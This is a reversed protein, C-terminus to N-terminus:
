VKFFDSALKARIFADQAQPNGLNRDPHIELSLARWRSHIEAFLNLDIIALNHLACNPDLEPDLVRNQPTMERLQEIKEPSLKKCLPETPQPSGFPPVFAQYCKRLLNQCSHAAIATHVVMNRLATKKRHLNKMCLKIGNLASLGIYYTTAIRVPIDVWTFLNRFIHLPLHLSPDSLPILSSEITTALIEATFSLRALALAAGNSAWGSSLALQNLWFLSAGAFLLLQQLSLKMPDKESSSAGILALPSLKLENCLDIRGGKQVFTELHSLRGEVAAYHLPTDGEEDPHNPDAGLEILREIIKKSGAIAAIHLLSRGEETLIKPDAGAAILKEFSAQQNGLVAYYLSTYGNPDKWNLLLSPGLNERKELDGRYAEQSLSTLKKANIGAGLALQHVKKKKEAIPDFGERDTRTFFNKVNIGFEILQNKRQLQKEIEKLDKKLKIRLIQSLLTQNESLVAHDIANLKEADPIEPDAGSELLFVAIEMQNERIALHLPFLNQLLPWNLIFGKQVIEQVLLLDGTRIAKEFADKSNLIVPSQTLFDNFLSTAAASM